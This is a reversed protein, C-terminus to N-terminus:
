LAQILALCCEEILKFAKRYEEKTKRYPDPIDILGKRLYEGLLNIRPLKPSAEGFLGNLRNLNEIDMVMVREAREIDDHQVQRAVHNALDIGFEKAVEIATVDAKKGVHYNETGASSCEKYGAKHVLAEAFPSRCINGKCIFLIKGM